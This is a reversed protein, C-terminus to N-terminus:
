LIDTFPPISHQAVRWESTTSDQWLVFNYLSQLWAVPERVSVLLKVRPSSQRLCRLLGPLRVFTEAILVRSVGPALYAGRQAHEKALRHLELRDHHPNEYM